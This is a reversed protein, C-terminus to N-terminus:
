VISTLSAMDKRTWGTPFRPFHCDIGVRNFDLFYMSKQVWIGASALEQSLHFLLVCPPTLWFQFGHHGLVLAIHSVQPELASFNTIKSGSNRDLGIGPDPPVAFVYPHALWFPFGRHGIFFHLAEFQGLFARFKRSCLGLTQFRCSKQFWIGALALEQSLRFLLFM